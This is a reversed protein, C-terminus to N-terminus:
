ILQVCVDMFHTKENKYLRVNFSKLIQLVKIKQLWIKTKTSFIFGGGQEHM